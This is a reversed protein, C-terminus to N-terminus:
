RRDEALWVTADRGWGLKQVIQYRGGKMTDRLHVPHYGGSRYHILDERQLGKCFFYGDEEPTWLYDEETGSGRPPLIRGSVNYIYRRHSPCFHFSSHQSRGGSHPLIRRKSHDSRPIGWTRLASFNTAIKVLHM